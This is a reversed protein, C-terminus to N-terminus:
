GNNYDEANRYTATYPYLLVGDVNRRGDRVDREYELNWRMALENAQEITATRTIVTDRKANLVEYGSKENNRDGAAFYQGKFFM